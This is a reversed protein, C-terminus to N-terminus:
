QSRTRQTGMIIHLRGESLRQQCIYRPLVSAGLGLEVAKRILLLSPVVMVPEIPPWQDFSAHWFRRIIPLEASYSIWPQELLFRKIERSKSRKKQPESRPDNRTSCSPM